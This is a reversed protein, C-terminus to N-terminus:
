RVPGGGGGGAPGGCRKLDTGAVALFGKAFIFTPVSAIPEATGQIGGTQPACLTQKVVIPHYGKLWGAHPKNM